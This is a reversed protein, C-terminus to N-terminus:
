RNSSLMRMSTAGLLYDVFKFFFMNKLVLASRTLFYEIDCLFLLKVKSARQKKSVNSFYLGIASSM